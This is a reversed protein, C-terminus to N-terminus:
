IQKVHVVLHMAVTGRDREEAVSNDATFTFERGNHTGNPVKEQDINSNDGHVHMLTVLVIEQGSIARPM